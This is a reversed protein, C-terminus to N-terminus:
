FKHIFKVFLKESFCINENLDVVALHMNTSTKKMLLVLGFLKRPGFGTKRERLHMEVGVRMLDIKNKTNLFFLAPV